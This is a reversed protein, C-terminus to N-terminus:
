LIAGIRLQEDQLLLGHRLLRAIYPARRTDLPAPTCASLQRKRCCLCYCASSTPVQAPMPTCALALQLNSTLMGLHSRLAPVQLLLRGAHARGAAGGAGAGLEQRLVGRGGAGCPWPWPPHHPLVQASAAVLVPSGHRDRQKRLLRLFHSAGLLASLSRM